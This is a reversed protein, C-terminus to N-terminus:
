APLRKGGVANGNGVIRAGVHLQEVFLGGFGQENKQSMRQYATTVKVVISGVATIHISNISDVVIDALAIM